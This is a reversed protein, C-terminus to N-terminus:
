HLKSVLGRAEAPPSQSTIVGDMSGPMFFVETILVQPFITCRWLPSLCTFKICAIHTPNKCKPCAKQVLRRTAQPFAEVTEAGVAVLEHKYLKGGIVTVEVNQRM